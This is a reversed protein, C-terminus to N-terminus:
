GVPTASFNQMVRVSSSAALPHAVAAVKGKGSTDMMIGGSSPRWDQGSGAVQVLFLHGRRVRLEVSCGCLVDGLYVVPDRARGVAILGLGPVASDRVPIRTRCETAALRRDPLDCYGLM